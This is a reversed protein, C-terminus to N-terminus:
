VVRISYVKRVFVYKLAVKARNLRLITIVAPRFRHSKLAVKARNLRYIIM